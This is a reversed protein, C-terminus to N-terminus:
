TCVRTLLVFSTRIVVAPRRGRTCVLKNDDDSDDDPRLSTLSVRRSAGSASDSGTVALTTIPKPFPTLVARSGSPRITGTSASTGLTSVTSGMPAAAPKPTSMGAVSPKGGGSSLVSKLQRMTLGQATPSYNRGIRDSPTCYSTDGVNYFTRKMVDKVCALQAKSALPASKEGIRVVGAPPGLSSRLAGTAIPDVLLGSPVPSRLPSVTPLLRYAAQSESLRAAPPARLGGLSSSGGTRGLQSLSADLEVKWPKSKRTDDQLGCFKLCHM